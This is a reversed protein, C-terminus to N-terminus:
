RTYGNNRAYTAKSITDNYMRDLTKTEKKAIYNSVTKDKFAKYASCSGHCGIHRDACNHCPNKSCMCNISLNVRAM